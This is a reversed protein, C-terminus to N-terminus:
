PAPSQSPAPSPSDDTESKCADVSALVAATAQTEQRATTVQISDLNELITDYINHGHISPQSSPQVALTSSPDTPLGASGLFSPAGPTAGQITTQGTTQGTASKMDNSLEGQMRGLAETDLTGSLLNLADKQSKLVAALRKNLDAAERTGTSSDDGNTPQKMISDILDLNHTLRLEVQRLYYEDFQVSSDSGYSIDHSMKAFGRHSAGILQDNNIMAAVAPRVHGRLTACLSSARVHGIEHPPTPAVSPAVPALQAVLVASLLLHANM